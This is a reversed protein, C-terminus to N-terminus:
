RTKRLKGFSIKHKNVTDVRHSITIKKKLHQDLYHEQHTESHDHNILHFILKLKLM